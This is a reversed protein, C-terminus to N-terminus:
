PRKKGYHRRLLHVALVVAVLVSFGRFAMKGRGHLIADGFVIFGTAYAISIVWSIWLYTRFPVDALGLLYSQVFYPPGPTIRLLLTIEAHDAAAVVPIKYKTRGIMEVLWPRLLYRALWYSLTLNVLLAAGTAALVGGLGMRETFVSGATLYFVSMPFGLAPLIAFASFFAWPGVGRLLNIGADISEGVSFDHIKWWWLGAGAVVLLLTALAFLKLPLPRNVM